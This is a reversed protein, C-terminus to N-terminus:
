GPLGAWSVVECSVVSTRVGVLQARESLL